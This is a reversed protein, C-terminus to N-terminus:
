YMQAITSDDQAPGLQREALLYVQQAAAALPSPLGRERAAQTVIGMDKVFIDVRSLVEPDQGRLAQITRPGRDQLMFSNAAGAVLGEFTQDLDLGMRDALALAESVAAIHVGCLLQNVPKWHM